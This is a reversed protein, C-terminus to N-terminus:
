FDAKIDPSGRVKNEFRALLFLVDSLRNLYKIVEPNVGENEAVEVSKREARRCITRALHLNAASKSGGPVIFNKLPELQEELETGKQTLVDVQESSIRKQDKTLPTSLDSGITFLEHQVRNLVSRTVESCDGALTLGIQSNLEDVAGYASVRPSNKAVCTGDSLLTNGKDGFKTTISMERKVSRKPEFGLPVLEAHGFVLKGQM